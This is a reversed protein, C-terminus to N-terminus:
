AAVAKPRAPRPAHFARWVDRWKLLTTKGRAPTKYRPLDNDRVFAWTWAKSRGLAAAVEEVSLLTDPAPGTTEDRAM